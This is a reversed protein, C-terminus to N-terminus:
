YESHEIVLPQFCGLPLTSTTTSALASVGKRVTSTLTTTSILLSLHYETLTLKKTQIPECTKVSPRQNTAHTQFNISGKMLLTKNSSILCHLHAKLKITQDWKRDVKEKKEYKEQWAKGGYHITSGLVTLWLLGKMELNSRSLHKTM